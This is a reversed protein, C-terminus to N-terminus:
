GERSIRLPEYKNPVSEKPRSTSVRRIYPVRIESITAKIAVSTLISIPMKYPPMAPYAPPATSVTIIRITSIIEVM